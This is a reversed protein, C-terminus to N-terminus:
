RCGGDGRNGGNVQPSASLDFLSINEYIFGFRVFAFLLMQFPTSQQIDNRNLRCIFSYSRQTDGICYECKMHRKMLAQLGAIWRSYALTPVGCVCVCVRMMIIIINLLKINWKEPCRFSISHIEEVRREESPSSSDKWALGNFIFENSLFSVFRM